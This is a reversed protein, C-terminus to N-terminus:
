CPGGGSEGEAPFPSFAQSVAIDLLQASEGDLYQMQGNVLKGPDMMSFVFKRTNPDGMDPPPLVTIGSIGPDGPIQRGLKGPSAEVPYVFIPVPGLQVQFEANTRKKMDFVHFRLGSYVDDPNTKFAWKYLPFLPQDFKEIRLSLDMDLQASISPAVMSFRDYSGEVGIGVYFLGPRITMDRVGDVVVYVGDIRLNRAKIHGDNVHLTLIPIGICAVIDQEFEKIAGGQEEKLQFAGGVLVSGTPGPESKLRTSFTHLDNEAVTVTVKEGLDLLKAFVDNVQLGQDGENHDEDNKLAFRGQVFAEADLGPAASAVTIVPVKLANGQDDTGKIDVDVCPANPGQDCAPVDTLRARASAPAGAYMGTVHANVMSIPSSAAVRVHSNDGFKGTVQLSAPVGHVDAAGRLTGYKTTTTAEARLELVDIGGSASYQIQLDHARKPDTQDFGFPGIHLDFPSPLGRLTAKAAAYPAVDFLGDLRVYANLPVNAPPRYGVVDIKKAAMDVEVVTPLGPLSVTSVLGFCKGLLSCIPSEDKACGAGSCARAEAAIGHEYLPVQGIADLAAVKGVRAEALLGVPRDTRYSLKGDGYRVDLSSPLSVKGFATYRNDAALRFDGDFAFTGDGSRMDFGVGDPKPAVAVLSLSGVAASADLDGNGQNYHAAVHQGRPATAGAHNTVAFAASGIPGTTSQFKFNGDAWDATMKAPINLAQAFAQYERGAFPVKAARFTIGGLAASASSEFHKAPADVLVDLDAPVGNASASLYGADVGSLAATIENIPASNHVGLTTRADFTGVVHVTAPLKDISARARLTGFSTQTDAEAAVTLVGLPASARYGVDVRAPNGDVTIPGVTLDVNSPLGDLTVQGELRPLNPLLGSIEIYAKLPATATYGTLEIEKNVLDVALTTPLGPLRITGVLGLCKGFLTCIPSDDKVCGAGEACGRARVAVGNEFLPAGLGNLASVKGVHVDAQLAISKDGTYTLKGDALDITLTLNTPLHDIRSTVALRTDDAGNAALVVDADVFVPQGDTNLQLNAVQKAPGRAYEALTLNRISVSGDFDGSVQRYHASVHQGAPMTAGGHNTVSFRAAGLAGSLGRFRMLGDAFDADYKAPVGTLEGIALFDRGSFPVRAVAAISGIPASSTGDLHRKPLDVLVDVETPLDTLAASLYHNGTPDLREVGQPSVFLEARPVASSARYSVKPVDGLDYRVDVTQPLGNIAAVASPGNATDVYAAKVRQVVSSANFQVRRAVTDLDFGLTAPLNSVDLRTKQRGDVIGAAVFPQGGPTFETGGRPHQDFYVDIKRLGKVRASAGLKTGTLVATAHDGDLPAYDGLEKSVFVEASGLPTNADFLVHRGPLNADVNVITPLERLAGRLVIAPDRDFFSVDLSSLASAADYDLTVRDNASNLAGRWQTPLNKAAARVSADLREGAYVFDAFLVDDIADSANYDVIDDGGDRPRTLAASVQNPLQDVVLQDFRNTGGSNSLVQVDLKTRKTVTADVTAKQDRDSAGPDIFAHATFVNPVPAFQASAVTPDYALGQDDDTVNALGATIALSGAAGVQLVNAKIDFIGRLAQLPAFTYLGVAATPLGAGRRFGDFGVSLRKHTPLDYVAWVHAPLDRGAFESTPLRLNVVGLGLHILNLLAETKAKLTNGLDELLKELNLREILLEPHLIVNLPDKLLENVINLRDRAIAIERDLNTLDRVVAAIDGPAAVPVLDTLVDPTRDGTVDVIAPVGLPLTLSCSVAKTQSESCVRYTIRPIGDPLQQLLALPDVPLPPPLNGSTLADILEQLTAPRSPDVVQASRVQPQLANADLAPKGDKTRGAKDLTALAEASTADVLEQGPRLPLDLTSPTVPPNPTIPVRDVPVRGDPGPDLAPLPAIPQAKSAENEINPSGDKGPDIAGLDGPAAPPTATAQAGLRNEAAAPNQPLQPPLQPPESTPPQQTTPPPAPTPEAQAPTVALTTVLATIVGLTGIRLRASAM